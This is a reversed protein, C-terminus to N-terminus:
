PHVLDVLVVLLPASMDRCPPRPQCPRTRAAASPTVAAAAAVEIHVACALGTSARCVGAAREACEPAGFAPDLAGPPVGTDTSM